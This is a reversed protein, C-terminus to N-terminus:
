SQPVEELAATRTDMACAYAIAEEVEEYFHDGGGFGEDVEDGEPTYLLVSGSGREVEITIQWGEPLAAAAHEIARGLAVLYHADKNEAM